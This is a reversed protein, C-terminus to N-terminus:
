QVDVRTAQIVGGTGAMSSLDSQQILDRLERIHTQTDSLDKQLMSKLEQDATLGAMTAAKTACLSKFMLLEHLEFTEHPAIGRNPM